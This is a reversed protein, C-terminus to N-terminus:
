RGKPALTVTGEHRRRFKDLLARRESEVKNLDIGFYKALWQEISTHDPLPYERRQHYKCFVIGCENQLWDLFAGIRQSEDSVKHLRDLEPTKPYDSM